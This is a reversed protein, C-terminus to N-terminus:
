DQKFVEGVVLGVFKILRLQRKLRWPQTVLRFLWELGLNSLWEPCRSVIGLLYDFTGGVAMGLIVGAQQLLKKHEVLWKEQLPAGLAVFVIQPKLAGITKEVLQEEEQSSNSVDQYGPLWYINQFNKFKLKSVQNIISFQSNSITKYKRGGVVLVKFNKKEALGLLDTVVERGAIREKLKKSKGKLYLLQSAWVLGIGDPLLIDAQALNTKFEQNEKSQVVQEPNPTFILTFKEEKLRNELISLLQTKSSSFLSLNLLQISPDIKKAM